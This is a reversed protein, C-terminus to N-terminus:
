LSYKLFCEIKSIREKFATNVGDSRQVCRWYYISKVRGDAFAKDNYEVGLNKMLM